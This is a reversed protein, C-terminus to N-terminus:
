ERGADRKKREERAEDRRRRLWFIGEIAGVVIVAIGPAFWAFVGWWDDM